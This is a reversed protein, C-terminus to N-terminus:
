QPRPPRELQTIRTELTVKDGEFEMAELIGHRRGQAEVENGLPVDIRGPVQMMLHKRGGRTQRQMEYWMESLMRMHTKSMPIGSVTHAFEDDPTKEDIEEEELIEGAIRGVQAVRNVRRMQIRGDNDIWWDSGTVYAVDSLIQALSANQFDFIIEKLLLDGRYSLGMFKEPDDWMRALSYQADDISLNKELQPFRNIQLEWRNEPTSSVGERRPADVGEFRYQHREYHPAIVGQLETSRVDTLEIYAVCLTQHLEELLSSYRGYMVYFALVNPDRTNKVLLPEDCFVVMSFGGDTPPEDDLVPFRALLIACSRNIVQAVNIIYDPEYWYVFIHKGQKVLGCRERVRLPEDNTERVHIQQEWSPGETEIQGISLPLNSQILYQQCIEGLIEEVTKPQAMHMKFAKCGAFDTQWHYSTFLWAKEYTVQNALSLDEYFENSIAKLARYKEDTEPDTLEEERMWVYISPNPIGTNGGIMRMGGKYDKLVAAQEKAQLNVWKHKRDKRIQSVIGRFIREDAREVLVEQDLEVKEVGHQYRGDQDNLRMSIMGVERTGPGPGRFGVRLRKPWIAQNAPIERGAIKLSYQAM